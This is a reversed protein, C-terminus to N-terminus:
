GVSRALGLADALQEWAATDAPDLLSVAIHDAGADLRRRLDAAVSDADGWAVLADVVPDALGDIEADGFGQRVLSARYAPAQTLFALPGSRSTARARDADAELVVLQMVALTTADGLRARADAVYDTTVVVPLAGSTRDRALDLMRPGLAALLRRGVPVVPPDEDLRDLYAGLTTLPGPGHAGGLGLVFRGPHAAELDAYLRAADAADFRDVPVIGTAVRAHRTAEVAATVQDLRELPGGPLWVTSYGLRDVAAALDEQGPPVLAGVTGVDIKTM